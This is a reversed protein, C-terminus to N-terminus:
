PNIILTDKFKLLKLKQSESGNEDVYEIIDSILRPNDIKTEQKYFDVYKKENVKILVNNIIELTNFIVEDILDRKSSKSKCDEKKNAFFDKGSEIYKIFAYNFNAWIDYKDKDPHSEKISNTFILLKDHFKKLAEDKKDKYELYRLSKQTKVMSRKLLIAFYTNIIAMIFIILLMANTLHLSALTAFLRELIDRVM